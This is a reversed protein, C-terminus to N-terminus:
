LYQFVFVQIRSDELGQVGEGLLQSLAKIYILLPDKTLLIIPIVCTFIFKGAM